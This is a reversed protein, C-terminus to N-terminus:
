DRGTDRVDARPQPSRASSADSGTTTVTVALGDDTVDVSLAEFTAEFVTRHHGDADYVMGTEVLGAKQLRNLRRYVTPRSANCEEAIDRAAKAETEIAELIPRTYETNLLALVEEPPTENAEDAEDRERARDVTGKPTSQTLSMTESEDTSECWVVGLTSAVPTVGTGSGHSTV